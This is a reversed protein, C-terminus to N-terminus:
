FDSLDKMANALSSPVEVLKRPWLILSTLPTDTEDLLVFSNAQSSYSVTLLKNPNIKAKEMAQNICKHLTSWFDAIPLECGVADQVVPPAKKGRFVPFKKGLAHRGLGLLFGNKDFIGAKLYSTGLDIGLYFGM